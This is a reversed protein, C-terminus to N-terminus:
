DLSPKGFISCVLGDEPHLVLAKMRPQQKIPWNKAHYRDAGSLSPMVHVEVGHDERVSHAHRHGTVWIRHETSSWHERGQQSM